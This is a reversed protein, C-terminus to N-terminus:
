DLTAGTASQVEDVRPRRRTIQGDPAVDCLLLLLRRALRATKEDGNVESWAADADISLAREIHGSRDDDAHTVLMPAGNGDTRATAIKWTRMLAHQLLPLQDPRDGADNIVRNVVGDDFTFPEYGVGHLSAPGIIAEEMQRRDLRPVLFQSTSVREPLGLFAECDGIFDSRMTLVVWVRANEDASSRLLMSVFAASEDRSPAEERGPGQRRFAFLEEFQDVVLLTLLDDSCREGHWPRRPSQSRHRAAGRHNRWRRRRPAGQTPLPRRWTRTRGAAQGSSLRRGTRRRSCFDTTCRRSCAPGCSRRSAPDARASSRSSGTTKSADCCPARRCKGGSSSRTTRRSSRDCAPFPMSLPPRSTM